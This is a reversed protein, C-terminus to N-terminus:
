FAIRSAYLPNVGNVGECRFGSTATTVEYKTDGVGPCYVIYNEANKGDVVYLLAYSPAEFPATHSITLQYTAQM